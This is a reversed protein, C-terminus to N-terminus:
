SKVSPPRTRSTPPSVSTSRLANQSRREKAGRLSPWTYWRYEFGRTEATTRFSNDIRNETHTRVRGVGLTILNQRHRGSGGDPISRALAEVDIFPVVM